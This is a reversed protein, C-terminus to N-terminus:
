PTRTLYLWIAACQERDVDYRPMVSNVMVQAPDIGERLVRCFAAMDYASAPGGRRRRNETLMAGTLAPAFGSQGPQATVAHCNVCRTATSPLDFGQGVLRARMPVVAEYLRRGQEFRADHLAVPAQLRTLALWGVGVCAAVSLILRWNRGVGHSVRNLGNM